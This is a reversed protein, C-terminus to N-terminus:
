QFDRGNRDVSEWKRNTAFAKVEYPRLRTVFTGHQVTAIESDYLVELTKGELKGLGTVEVGMHFRNDENILVILWEAGVRRAMIRVERDSGLSRGNSETLFVRINAQEKAVLFPQLIHLESVLAFLAQRFPGRKPPMWTGWYLIGSAGHAIADYAMFRSELFSPYVLREDKPPQTEHWSFGQLIMWVPKGKGISQYRGAFDGVAAPNRNTEHIPYIDCGTIDIHDLYQRVFKMDSEAAENIWIPHKQRDM